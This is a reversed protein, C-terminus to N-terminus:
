VDPTTEFPTGAVIEFREADGAIVNVLFDGTAVRGGLVVEGHVVASGLPGVGAVTVSGDEGPTLAVFAEGGESLSWTPVVGEPAPVPNEMEDTWNGPSLVVSNDAKLDMLILDKGTSGNFTGPTPVRHEPRSKGPAGIRWSFSLHDKTHVDVYLVVDGLDLRAM